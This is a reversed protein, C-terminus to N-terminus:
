QGGQGFSAGGDKNMQQRMDNLQQDNMQTMQGTSKDYNYGQTYAIYAQYDQSNSFTSPKRMGNRYRNSDGNYSDTADYNTNVSSSTANSQNSSKSVQKTNTSRNSSSKSTNNNASSATKTDNSSSKSTTTSSNAKQKHNHKRKTSHKANKKSEAVLSSHEAKLSNLHSSKTASQNGCAALSLGALATICILVIKKM